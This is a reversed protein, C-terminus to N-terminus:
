DELSTELGWFTLEECTDDNNSMNRLQVLYGQFTFKLFVRCFLPYGRRELPGALLQRWEWNSGFEM